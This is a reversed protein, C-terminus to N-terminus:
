QQLYRDVTLDRYPYPRNHKESLQIQKSRERSRNKKDQSLFEYCKPCSVDKEYKNTQKDQLSIPNNCGRCLEYTGRKLEHTVSVRNDFVFCEGEWFSNKKDVDELYKLIGGNLQFVNEFGQSKMYYSAKECRIGGTCFMAINKDKSDSLKEDIYDKFELFSETNPKLANNFSGINSEYENRVDIVITDDQKILENWENPSVMKGRPNSPDISLGLMTIIEKKEKVKLRYFPMIKALSYKRNLNIFGLNNIFETFKDISSILGALTGNIGEPAVIVTGRINEEKCYSKIRETMYSLDDIKAFEYFAM